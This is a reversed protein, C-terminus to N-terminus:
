IVLKWKAAPHKVPKLNDAIAQTLPIVEREVGKGPRNVLQLEHKDKDIYRIITYLADDNPKEGDIVILVQDGQLQAMTSRADVKM